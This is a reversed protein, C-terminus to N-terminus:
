EDPEKAADGLGSDAEADAFVDHYDICNRMEVTAAVLDDMLKTRRAEEEIDPDGGREEGDAEAAGRDLSAEPTGPSERVAAIAGTSSSTETKEPTGEAAGVIPSAAVEGLGGRAPEDPNEFSAEEASAGVYEGGAGEQGSRPEAAAGAEGQEPDSGKQSKDLLDSM